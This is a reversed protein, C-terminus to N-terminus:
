RDYVPRLLRVFERGSKREMPVLWLFRSFLDIVSLTYKYVKGNHKVLHKSLEILNIQHQSQVHKATVPKPTAKNTFRANLVRYKFENKMVQLIKMIIIKEKESLGAYSSEARDRLKKCGGSKAQDFTNAVVTIRLVEKCGKKRSFYLTPTSEEGLHFANKQVRTRKKVPVDFKGQVLLLLTDYVEVSIPHIYVERLDRDRPKAKNCCLFCAFFIGFLVSCKWKCAIKIGSYFTHLIEHKLDHSVSVRM